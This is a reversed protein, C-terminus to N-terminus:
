AIGKKRIVRAHVIIAVIMITGSISTVGYARFWCACHDDGIIQSFINKGASLFVARLCVRMSQM